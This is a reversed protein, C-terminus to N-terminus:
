LSNLKIECSGRPVMEHVAHGWQGADQIIHAPVETPLDPLLCDDFFGEDITTLLGPASRSDPHIFRRSPLLMLMGNM